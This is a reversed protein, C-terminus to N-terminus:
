KGGWIWRYKKHYCLSTTGRLGKLNCSYIKWIFSRTVYYDNIASYESTGILVDAGDTINYLRAKHRDCLFAPASILCTYTGAALTIQNSAVSCHGGTDSHETTINRTRWAGSTFTGGATNATQQEWVCIYDNSVNFATVVGASTKLKLVGGEEYIVSYGSAPTAPTGSQTKIRLWDTIMTKLTVTM